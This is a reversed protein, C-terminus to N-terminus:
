QHYAGRYDAPLLRALAEMIQRTAGRVEDSRYARRTLRFPEGVSLTIQPRRLRRLSGYVRENQTGTMAIPIIPAGSRLALFAAGASGEELGHVLSYRGEPAIGVIRGEVLADLACLLARRDPRGRHLWIVGYWDMLRGLIPFDRLEIKGLGDPAVPLAALLLAVDADGLHNIVALAPGKSPFRELGLITVQTLLRILIRAVLCAFNRFLRRRWHLRPLRTLEPRWINTVPKPPASPPTPM